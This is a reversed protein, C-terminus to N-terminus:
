WIIKNLDDINQAANVQPELIDRLKAVNTQQWTM